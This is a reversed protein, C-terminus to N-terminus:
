PEVLLELAFDDVRELAFGADSAWGLLDDISVLAPMARVLAGVLRGKYLKNWHSVALRRGDDGERVVRVAWGGAPLRERRVYEGSRLDVVIEGSAVLEALPGLPAWGDVRVLGQEASHIALHTGAW